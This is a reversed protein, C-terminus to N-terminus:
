RIRVLRLSANNFLGFATLTVTVGSLNVLGVNQGASLFVSAHCVGLVNNGGSPGEVQTGTGMFPTNPTSVEALGFRMIFPSVQFITGYILYDVMYIGSQQITMSSSGLTINNSPGISSFPIFDLNKVDVQSINYQYGDALSISGAPGVPGQSGTNGVPGQSGSAGPPGVPGQSGTNGVPGQSGSAGPPGPILVCGSCKCCNKKKRSVSSM